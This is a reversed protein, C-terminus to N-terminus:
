GLGRELCGNFALCQLCLWELFPHLQTLPSGSCACGRGLVVARQMRAELVRGEERLDTKISVFFLDTIGQEWSATKNRHIVAGSGSAGPAAALSIFPPRVSPRSPSRGRTAGVGRLPATSEQYEPLFLLQPLATTCHRRNPVRSRGHLSFPHFLVLLVNNPLFPMCVYIPHNMQAMRVIRKGTM